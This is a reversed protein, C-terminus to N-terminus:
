YQNTIVIDEIHYRGTYEQQWFVIGDVRVKKGIYSSVNFENIAISDQVIEGCASMDDFTLDDDLILYHAKFLKDDSVKLESITGALVLRVGENPLYIKEVTASNTVGCILSIYMLIIIRM